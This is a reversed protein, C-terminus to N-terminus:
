IASRVQRTHRRHRGLVRNLPAGPTRASKASIQAIAIEIDLGGSSNQRQSVSGQATPSEVLTVNVQPARGGGSAVGLKGDSGRALPMIAEPDREGFLAMPAITPSSVVDPVGGLAFPVVQGASLVNGLASPAIPGEFPSGAPGPLPVSM